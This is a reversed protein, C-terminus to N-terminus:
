RDHLGGEAVLRRSFQLAAFEDLAKMEERREALQHRAMARERLRELVGVDRDAVRLHERASAVARAREDRQVRAHQLRRRLEEIWNRHREFEAADRASRLVRDYDQEATQIADSAREVALAAGRM